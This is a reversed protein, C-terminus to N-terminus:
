MNETSPYSADRAIEDQYGERLGTLFEPHVGEPTWLEEPKRKKGAERDIIAHERGLQRGHHYWRDATRDRQPPQPSQQAMM